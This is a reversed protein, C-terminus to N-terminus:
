RDCQNELPLSLRRNRATFNPSQFLKRRHGRTSLALADESTKSTPPLRHYAVKWAWLPENRMVVFSPFPARVHCLNLREGFAWM